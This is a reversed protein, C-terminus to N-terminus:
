EKLLYTQESNSQSTVNMYKLYLENYKTEWNKCESVCREYQAKAVTEEKIQSPHIIIQPQKTQSTVFHVPPPSLNVNSLTKVRSQVPSFNRPYHSSTQLIVNNKNPSYPVYTNPLYPQQTYAVPPGVIYGSEIIKPVYQTNGIQIPSIRSHQPIGLEIVRVQSGSGINTPNEILRYHQGGERYLESM